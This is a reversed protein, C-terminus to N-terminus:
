SQKKKAVQVSGLDVKVGDDSLDKIETIFRIAIGSLKPFGEMQFIENVCEDTIDGNEDMEVQYDSGDALKFGEIKRVSYKLSLFIKHIIDEQEKGGQMTIMSSMKRRHDWKMPTLWFTVPGVRVPILDGHRYIVM